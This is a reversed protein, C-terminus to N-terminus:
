RAPRLGRRADALHAALQRLAATCAQDRVQEPDGDFLYTRTRADGDVLTGVFVTGPPAGDVPEDGAVGSIAVTAEAAFLRTAGVAMEAVAGESYVSAAKVDLLSRKVEEQYAVLGGRFWGSAGIAEALAASARGATCSEATAVTRGDRAEAIEDVEDSPV